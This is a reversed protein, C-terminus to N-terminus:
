RATAAMSSMFLTGDGTSTISGPFDTSGPVIVNQQAWAVGGSTMALGFLVGGALFKRRLDM